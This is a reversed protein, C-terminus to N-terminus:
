MLWDGQTHSRGGISVEQKSFNQSDRMITRSTLGKQLHREGSVNCTRVFQARGSFRGLRLYHVHSCESADSSDNAFLKM